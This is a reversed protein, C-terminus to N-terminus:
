IFHKKTVRRSPRTKKLYLSKIKKHLLDDLAPTSKIINSVEELEIQHGQNSLIAATKAISGHIAYIKIVEQIVNKPQYEEILDIYNQLKQADKKAQELTRFTKM